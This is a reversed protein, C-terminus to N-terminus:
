ITLTKQDDFERKIQVVTCCTCCYSLVFDELLSGEILNKKRTHLRLCPLGCPFSFFTLISWIINRGSKHSTYAGYCNPCLFALTADKPVDCVQLVSYKWEKLPPQDVVTRKLNFTIM